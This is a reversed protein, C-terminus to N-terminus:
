RRNQRPSAPERRWEYSLYSGPSPRYRSVAGRGLGYKLCTEARYRTVRVGAAVENVTSGPNVELWALVLYYGDPASLDM